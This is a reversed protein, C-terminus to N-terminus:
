DTRESRGRKRTKKLYLALDCSTSDLQLLPRNLHCFHFCCVLASFDNSLLHYIERMHNVTEYSEVSWLMLVIPYWVQYESTEKSADQKVHRNLFMWPRVTTWLHQLKLKHSSNTLPCLHFFCFHSAVEGAKPWQSGKFQLAQKNIPNWSLIVSM